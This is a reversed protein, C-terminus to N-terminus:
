TVKLRKRLTARSKSFIKCLEKAEALLTRAKLKDLGLDTQLALALWYITEDCEEVVICLKAYFEKDNRARRVARYNAGTSTASRIAQKCIMAFAPDYRAPAHERFLLVTDKALEFAREQLREAM